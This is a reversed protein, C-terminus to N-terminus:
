VAHISLGVRWRPNVNTVREAAEEHHRHRTAAMHADGGAYNRRLAKKLQSVILANRRGGRQPLGGIHDLGDIGIDSRVDFARLGEM